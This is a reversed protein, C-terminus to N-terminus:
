MQFKGTLILQFWHMTCHISTFSFLHQYTEIKDKLLKSNWHFLKAVCFDIITAYFKKSFRNQWFKCSPMMCKRGFILFIIEPSTKLFRRIVSDPLRNPVIVPALGIFLNVKSKLEPFRSFAM